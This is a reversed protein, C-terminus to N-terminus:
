EEVVAQINKEGSKKVFVDYYIRYDYKYADADINQDPTFMRMKETKKVLHAGSKPLVLLRIQKASGAPVFGGGNSTNFTYATKMREPVVPILAVGNISKVRLNINGQKFDSVTISRSIEPSNELAAYYDSEVFAVLEEDYGAVKRVGNIATTLQSLEKGSQYNVANGKATAFSFIKSLVYADCEPVVKTRVYEGMIQGALNAIGTEDMDERDIQFSRARDMDLEYASQNVTVAGRAFGTDRNYDVLGAFDIDPIMVTKAGVFKTRLANDEFFAVASKEVFLKDLAETYKKAKVDQGNLNNISSEIVAM